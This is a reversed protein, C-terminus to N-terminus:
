METYDSTDIVNSYDLGDYQKDSMNKLKEILTETFSVLDKENNSYFPLTNQFFIIASQRNPQHAEYLATIEENTFTITM